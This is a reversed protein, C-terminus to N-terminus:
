MRSLIAGFGALVVACVALFIMAGVIDVGAEAAGGAHMPANVGITTSQMAVNMAGASASAPNMVREM